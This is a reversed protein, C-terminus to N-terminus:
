KQREEYRLIEEVTLDNRWSDMWQRITSASVRHTDRTQDALKKAWADFIKDDVHDKYKLLVRLEQWWASDPEVLEVDYGHELAHTAYARTEHNLGNGRDVIIPSIAQAVASQFRDFNWRRAEPLLAEQYDYRSPDDGVQTYFYEDTELVIGGSEALRRATHSKGSSPLGRM